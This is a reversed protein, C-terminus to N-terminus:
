KRSLNLDKEKISRVDAELYYVKDIKEAKEEIAKAFVEALEDGLCSMKTIECYKQYGKENIIRSASYGKIRDGPSLAVLAYHPYISAYYMYSELLGYGDQGITPIQNQGGDMLIHTMDLLDNCCFKRISTM